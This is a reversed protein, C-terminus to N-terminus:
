RGLPSAEEKFQFGIKQIGAAWVKDLINAVDGQNANADAQVYLHLNPEQEKRRKLVDVLENRDIETKELLVKGNDKISLTLIDSKTEATGRNRSQLLLEVNSAATELDFQLNAVKRSFYNFPILAFIALALGTATAILAEAIGGSVKVAALEENGVFHFANMIGTVTGLLGLLPGLTVTTDLIALGRGAEKLEFGAAVQLANQLSTEHHTLGWWIMKMVPDKSAQALKVAEEIQGSKLFNYVESLRSGKRRLQVMSWWFIREFVTAFAIIATLLLPWMIPGGRFFTNLIINAFSM